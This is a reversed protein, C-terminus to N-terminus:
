KRTVRVSQYGLKKIMWAKNSGVMRIGRYVLPLLLLLTRSHQGEVLCTVGLGAHEVEGVAVTM